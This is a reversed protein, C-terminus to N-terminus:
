MEDIFHFGSPSCTVYPGAVKLDPNHFHRLIAASKDDKLASSQLSSGFFM